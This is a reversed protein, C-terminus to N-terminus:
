TIEEEKRPVIDIYVDKLSSNNIFYFVNVVKFHVEDALVIFEGVRPVHGSPISAHVFNHRDLYLDKNMLEKDDEYPFMLGAEKVMKGLEGMERISIGNLTKIQFVVKM